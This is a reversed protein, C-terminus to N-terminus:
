DSLKKWAEQLLNMFSIAHAPQPRTKRYMLYVPVHLFSGSNKIPFANCDPFATMLQPLRSGRCFFAGLHSSYLSIILDNNNSEIYVKPKFGADHFCADALKRLRMSQKNLIFPMESFERLDTGKMAQQKIQTSRNGFYRNLLVDSCVLYNKEDLLFISEIKNSLASSETRGELPSVLVDLMGDYLMQIMIPTADETLQLSVNPWRQSFAPLILPFCAIARLASIGIRLSGYHNNSIDSLLNVLTENERLIATASEVLQQGAYTLQLKPQREFLATGYYQELKQIQLSLAQQSIYLRQAATTMNLDKAVELFYEMSKLNMNFM